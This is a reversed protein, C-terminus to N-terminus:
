TFLIRRFYGFIHKQKFAHIKDLSDEKIARNFSIVRFFVASIKILETLLHFQDM